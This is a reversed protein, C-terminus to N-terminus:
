NNEYNNSKIFNLQISLGATFNIGPMARYAIAQYNEDFLNNVKFFIGYTNKKITFKKEIELNALHYFPLLLTNDSTTYRLGVFLHTYTLYFNKFSIKAHMNAIHEPIYILQKGLTEEGLVQYSKENTSKTFSYNGSFFFNIKKL